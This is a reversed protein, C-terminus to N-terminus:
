TNIIRQNILRQSVIHGLCAIRKEKLSHFLFTNRFCKHNRRTKHLNQAERNKSAKNKVGTERRIKLFLFKLGNRMNVQSLTLIWPRGM